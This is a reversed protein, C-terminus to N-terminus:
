HRTSRGATGIIEKWFRGADADVAKKELVM